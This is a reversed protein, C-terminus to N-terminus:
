NKDLQILYPTIVEWVKSFRHGSLSCSHLDEFTIFKIEKIAEQGSQSRRQNPITLKKPALYILKIKEINESKISHEKLKKSLNEYFKKYKPNKLQSAFEFLSQPTSHDIINKYQEYQELKFSSSDTKLEIFYLTNQNIMLYDINTSIQNDDDRSLPFEGAIFKYDGADIKKNSALENMFGEIFIELIPSLEREVQVKPMDRNSIISGILVEIFELEDQM